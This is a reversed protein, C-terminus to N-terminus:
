VNTVSRTSSLQNEIGTLLYSKNMERAEVVGKSRDSSIMKSSFIVNANGSSM